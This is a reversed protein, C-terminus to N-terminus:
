SHFHQQWLLRVDERPVRVPVLNEIASRHDMGSERDKSYMFTCEAFSRKGFGPADSVQMAFIVGKLIEVPEVHIGKRGLGNSPGRCAAWIDFFDDDNSCDRAECMLRFGEEGPPMSEAAETLFRTLERNAEILEQTPPFGYSKGLKAQLETKLLRYRYDDTNALADAKPKSQVSPSGQVRWSHAVYGIVVAVLSFAVVIGWLWAKRTPRPGSGDVAVAAAKKVPEPEPDADDLVASKAQAKKVSDNWKELQM